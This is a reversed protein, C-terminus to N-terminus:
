LFPTGLRVADYDELHRYDVYLTNLEREKMTALQDVYVRKAQTGGAALALRFCHFRLCCLKASMTTRFMINNKNLAM